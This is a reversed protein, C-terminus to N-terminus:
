IYSNIEHSKELQNTIKFFCLSENFVHQAHLAKTWVSKRVLQVFLVCVHLGAYLDNLIIEFTLHGACICFYLSLM